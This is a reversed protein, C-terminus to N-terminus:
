QYILADGLCNRAVTQSKAPQYTFSKVTKFSDQALITEFFLLFLLFGVLLIMQEKTSIFKSLRVVSSFPGVRLSKTYPTHGLLGYEIKRVTLGEAELSGVWRVIQM